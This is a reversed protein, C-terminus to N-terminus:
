NRDGVTNQGRGTLQGCDSRGSILGGPSRGSRHRDRCVGAGDGSVCWGLADKAASPLAGRRGRCPEDCAWREQVAPEVAVVAPDPDTVAPTAMLM